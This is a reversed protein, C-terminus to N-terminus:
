RPPDTVTTLMLANDRAEFIGEMRHGRLSSFELPWDVESLRVIDSLQGLQVHCETSLLSICCMFSVLTKVNQKGTAM